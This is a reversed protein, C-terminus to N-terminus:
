RCSGRFHGKTPERKVQAIRDLVDGEVVQAFVAYGTAKPPIPRVIAM